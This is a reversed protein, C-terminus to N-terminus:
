GGPLRIKKGGAGVGEKVPNRDIYVTFGGSPRQGGPLEALAKGNLGASVGWRFSHTGFKVATTRWLFVATKNPALPGLSWTNAYATNPDGRPHSFDEAKGSEQPGGDVIWVARSPSALNNTQQQALSGSESFPSSTTGEGKANVSVAIDPIVKNGANQVAIRMVAHQSLRQRAPFEASLIKVPFHGATEKADQKPSSGCGGASVALATTAVAAGFRAIGRQGEL